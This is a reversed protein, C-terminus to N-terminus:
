LCIVVLVDCLNIESTVTVNFNVLNIRLQVLYVYGSIYRLSIGELFQPLKEKGGGCM